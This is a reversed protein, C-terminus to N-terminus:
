KINNINNANNENIINIIEFIFAEFHITPKSGVLTNYEYKSSINIFKNRYYPSLIEKSLINNMVIVILDSFNYCNILLDYMKDRIGNIWDDTLKPSLILEIIHSTIYEVEDVTINFKDTSYYSQFLLIIKNLNRNKSKIINEFVSEKPRKHENKSISKLINIIDINSPSPCRILVCRSRIPELIKQYRNTVLIFRTTEHLLEMIRRLSSQFVNCLLECHWIIIVKYSNNYVNASASLDNILSRM